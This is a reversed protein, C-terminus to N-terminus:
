CAANTRAKWAIRAALLRDADLGAIPPMDPRQDRCFESWSHWPWEEPEQVLRARCANRHIYLRKERFEGCSYITRDYGGFPEWIPRDLGSRESIRSKFDRLFDPVSLGNPTVLLHVHDPMLCWAHMLLGRECNRVLEEVAIECHRSDSFFPERHLCGFTLFRAAGEIEIRRLKKFDPPNSM